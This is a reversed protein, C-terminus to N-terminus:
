KNSLIEDEILPEITSNPQTPILFYPVSFQLQESTASTPPICMKKALDVDFRHEYARMMCKNQEYLSGVVTFAIGFCALTVVVVTTLCIKSFLGM